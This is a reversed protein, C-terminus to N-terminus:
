DIIIINFKNGIKKLFKSLKQKDSKYIVLIITVM